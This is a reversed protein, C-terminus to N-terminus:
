FSVVHSDIDEWFVTDSTLLGAYPAFCCTRSRAHDFSPSDPYLPNSHWCIEDCSGVHIFLACYPRPHLCAHGQETLPKSDDRMDSNTSPRSSGSAGSTAWFLRPLTRANRAIRRRIKVTDRPNRIITHCSQHLLQTNAFNGRLKFKTTTQQPVERYGAPTNEDVRWPSASNIKAVCPSPM